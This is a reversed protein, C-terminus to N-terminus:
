FCLRQLHKNQLLLPFSNAATVAPYANAGFNAYNFNSYNFTNNLPVNDFYGELYMQKSNVHFYDLGILLRNRLEGIKFDGNINEQIETNYANSNRTSQDYRGIMKGPMLYFYPSFGNSYSHTSTFVTQSTFSNSIKYTATGIYNTNSTSQTLSKDFYSKHVDIGLGEVTTSGLTSVNVGYPFFFIAQSSNKGYFLEAEAQLTLRDNVKYLLVPAVAGNKSFYNDQTGEQYTYAGNLRFLLTKKENLPTNIDLSARKFDYSGGTLSVSGGFTDYPKKTVRNILGGYSTLSSGFLTASPGKIVEIRDVNAGDITSTVNGAVGNRLQSQLIFGRSNYYSGGDGGRGTAEWMKQLGPANKIADDVTFASQEQMLDTGITSYVQPNELNDLPMKAVTESRKFKFKNVKSGSVSVERLASNDANIITNPVTVTQGVYVHVNYVKPQVGLHTLALLYSGEPAKVEFYGDTNTITGYKTGKLTVSVNDAPKNDSTYIYGKVTGNLQQAHSATSDFAAILFLSLFFLIYHKM